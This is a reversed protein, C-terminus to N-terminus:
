QHLLNFDAGSQDSFSVNIFLVNLFRPLMQYVLGEARRKERRLDRAKVRVNESFVQFIIYKRNLKSLLELFTFTQARSSSAAILTPTAWMLASWFIINKLIYEIRVQVARVANRVLVMMLPSICVQPCTMLSIHILMIAWLGPRRHHHHCHRVGPWGEENGGKEIWNHNIFM